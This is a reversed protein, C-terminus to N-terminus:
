PRGLNASAWEYVELDMEIWDRMRRRTEADLTDFPEREPNANDAGLRVAFGTKQQLNEVFDQMRDQFGVVLFSSLNTKAREVLDSDLLRPQERRFAMRFELHADWALQWTVTNYLDTLLHPHDKIGLFEVLSYKAALNTRETSEKGENHLKVLHYYYSAIRDYPDRLITVVKGRLTPESAIVRFGAHGSFLDVEAHQSADYAFRAGIPLVRNRNRQFATRLSTGATKPIHLHFLNAGSL